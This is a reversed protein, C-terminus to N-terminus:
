VVNAAPRAALSEITDRLDQVMCIPEKMDRYALDCDSFVMGNASVYVLSNIQATQVGFADTYSTVCLSEPASPDSPEPERGIGNDKARGVRIVWSETTTHQEKESKYFPLGRLINGQVTKEHFIDDSLLVSCVEPLAMHQFWYSLLSTLEQQHAKGNTIISFAYPLKGLAQARQFFYQIANLNLSPEGGSFCITGIEDAADLVADIIDNSIDMNEADGRMCHRCQMNCRRTVELIFENAQIKM